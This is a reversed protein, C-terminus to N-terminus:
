PTTSVLVTVFLGADSELAYIAISHVVQLARDGCVAMVLRSRRFYGQTLARCPRTVRFTRSLTARSM